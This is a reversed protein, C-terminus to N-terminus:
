PPCPVSECRWVGGVKKLIYRPCPLAQATVMAQRTGAPASAYASTNWDSGPGGVAKATPDQEEPFAIVLTKRDSQPVKIIRRPEGTAKDFANVSAVDIVDTEDALFEVRVKKKTKKTEFDAEEHKKAMSGGRKRSGEPENQHVLAM